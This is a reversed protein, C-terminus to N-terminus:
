ILTIVKRIKDRLKKYKEFHEDLESTAEATQSTSGALLIKLNRFYIRSHLM